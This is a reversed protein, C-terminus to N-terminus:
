FLKAKVNKIKFKLGINVKVIKIAPSRVMSTINYILLSLQNTKAAKCLFETGSTLIVYSFILHIVFVTIM